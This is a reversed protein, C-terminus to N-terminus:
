EIGLIDKAQALTAMSAEHDGEQHLREGEDRLEQVQSKQEESLSATAMAEDIAAMDTPCQFALATGSAALLLGAALGLAPIKM